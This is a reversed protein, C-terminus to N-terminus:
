ESLETVIENVREMIKVKVNESLGHFLPQRQFFDVMVIYAFANADIEAPQLNYEEVSYCLDITKYTELYFKENYKIQWVHRLEHAISFLQDFNPKNYKKLYIAKGTSAVQAMMTNSHFHSTDYSINPVPINLINCIDEIYDHIM